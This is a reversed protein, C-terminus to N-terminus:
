EEEIIKHVVSLTEEKSTVPFPLVNGGELSSTLKDLSESIRILAIAEIEAITLPRDHSYRFYDTIADMLNINTPNIDM